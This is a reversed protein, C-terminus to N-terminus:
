ALAVLGTASSAAAVIGQNLEVPLISGALVTFTVQTGGVAPAVIITGAGAAFIARCTLPTTNSPAIAAFSSYTGGMWNQM